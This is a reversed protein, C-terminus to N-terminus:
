EDIKGAISAIKVDAHWYIMLLWDFLLFSMYHSIVSTYHIIIYQAELFVRLSANVLHLVEIVQGLCLVVHATVTGKLLVHVRLM